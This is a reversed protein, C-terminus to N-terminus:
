LMDAFPKHKIVLNRHGLVGRQGALKVGDFKVGSFDDLGGFIGAHFVDDNGGLMMVAESHEM